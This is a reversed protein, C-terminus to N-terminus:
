ESSTVRQPKHHSEQKSDLMRIRNPPRIKRKNNQEKANMSNLIFPSALACIAVAMACISVATPINLGRPQCKKECEPKTVLDPLLDRVDRLSGSMSINMEAMPHLADGIAAIEPNDHTRLTNIGSLVSREHKKRDEADRHNLSELVDGPSPSMMNKRNQM